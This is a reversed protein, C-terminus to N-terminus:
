PERHVDSARKDDRIGVFTSHRLLAEATWEVFGIEVVVTPKVWRLAKMDETTIGEGWHSKGTSNPLNVFPCRAVQRDGIRRMLEARMHPTFGARVKGAFYFRRKEFYGVLVSDFNTASPRYGGVVFDQRPSFKVKVWADTREGPRYVSDRRKAVVGELRLKRIEREIHQPSGPLVDSLLVHSDRVVTKLRRRREDLPKRLLSEGDLELLDFVYYVVTLASTRRHQLAQFSPHGEADLAVIEGDLITEHVPLAAIARAVTPYDNTLNKQNRSMLQVGGASKVAIARYGDWKVEYTWADGRPLEPASTALM